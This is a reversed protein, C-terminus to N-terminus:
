LMKSVVRITSEISEMAKVDTNGMFWESEKVGFSMVHRSIGLTKIHVDSNCLAKYFKDGNLPLYDDKLNYIGNALERDLFLILNKDPNAKLAFKVSVNGDADAYGALYEERFENQLNFIDKRKQGGKQFNVKETDIGIHDLLKRTVCPYATVESFGIETLAKTFNERVAFADDVIIAEYKKNSM